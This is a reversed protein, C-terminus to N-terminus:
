KPGLTNQKTMEVGGSESIYKSTANRCLVNLPQKNLLVLLKQPFKVFDFEFETDAFLQLSSMEMAHRGVHSEDAPSLLNMGNIQKM